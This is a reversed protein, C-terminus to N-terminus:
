QPPRGPLTSPPTAPVPTPVPTPAPTTPASRPAVAPVPAPMQPVPPEAIAKGTPLPEVNNSWTNLAETAIANKGRAIFASQTMSVDYVAGDVMPMYVGSGFTTDMQLPNYKGLSLNFVDVGADDRITDYATSPTANERAPDDWRGQIREFRYFSDVGIINAWPKMKWVRAEIRVKDGSVNFDQPAGLEGKSNGKRVTATFQNPAVQKLTVEAALQEHTLRSYTQLNLAILGIVAAGALTLGGFLIRFGGGLVNLRFLRGIGGVLMMVGVLGVFAPILWWISM